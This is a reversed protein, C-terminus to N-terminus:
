AGQSRRLKPAVERAFRLASDTSPFDAFRLILHRVGIEIYQALREAVQEPTGVVASEPKGKQYLVSREALARAEAESDAM